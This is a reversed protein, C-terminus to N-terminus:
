VLIHITRYNLHVLCYLQGFNFGNGGPKNFDVTMPLLENLQRISEKNEKPFTRSFKEIPQNETMDDLLIKNIKRVGPPFFM